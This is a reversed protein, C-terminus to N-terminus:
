RTLLRILHRQPRLIAPETRFLQYWIFSPDILHYSFRRYRQPPCLSAFARFHGYLM